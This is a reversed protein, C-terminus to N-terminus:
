EHQLETLEAHLHALIRVKAKYVSAISIGLEDAVESPARCEVVQAWFAKWTTEHFHGQLSPIVSQILYNHFETEDLSDGKPQSVVNEIASGSELTPFTHRRRDIWKRKTITWLWGRFRHHRQYQFGPLKQVLVAFVDQVLDAADDPRLGLKSAWTYLLPSYTHVFTSWSELDGNDRLRQLLSASTTNMSPSRLFMSLQLFITGCKSSALITWFDVLHTPTEVVFAEGINV